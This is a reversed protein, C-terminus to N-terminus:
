CFEVRWSVLPFNILILHILPRWYRSKGVPRWYANWRSERHLLPTSETVPEAEDAEADGEDGYIISRWGHHPEREEVQGQSPYSVSRVRLPRQVRRGSYTSSRSRAASQPTSYPPPQEEAPKRSSDLLWLSSGDPSMVYVPAAVPATPCCTDGETPVNLRDRGSAATSPNNVPPGLTLHLSTSSGSAAVAAMTNPLHPLCHSRRSRHSALFTALLMRTDDQSPHLRSAHYRHRITCTMRATSRAATELHQRAPLYQCSSQVSEAKLMKDHGPHHSRRLSLLQRCDTVKCVVTPSSFTSVVAALLINVGSQPTRRPRASSRLPSNRVPLHLVTRSHDLAIASRLVEEGVARRAVIVVAEEVAVDFAEHHLGAVWGAGALASVADPAPGERVLHARCELEVGAAHDGHCIGARTRVLGLYTLGSSESM